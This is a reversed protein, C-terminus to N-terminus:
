DARSGRNNSSSFPCSGLSTTSIETHKSIISSTESEFEKSRRNSELTSSMGDLLGSATSPTEDRGDSPIESGESDESQSWQGAIMPPFLGVVVHPTASVASFLDMSEEFKKNEFLSLAKLYRVTRLTKDKLLIPEM